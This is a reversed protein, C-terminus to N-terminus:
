SRSNQMLNDLYRQIFKIITARHPREFNVLKWESERRLVDQLIMIVENVPIKRAVINVFEEHINSPPHLIAHIQCPVLRPINKMHMNPVDLFVCVGYGSYNLAKVLGPIKLVGTNEHKHNFCYNYVPILESTNNHDM